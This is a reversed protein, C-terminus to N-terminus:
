PPLCSLSEESSCLYEVAEQKKLGAEKRCNNEWLQLGTMLDLLVLCVWVPNIWKINRAHCDCDINGSRCSKIFAVFM